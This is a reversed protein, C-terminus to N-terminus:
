HSLGAPKAGPSPTSLGILTNVMMPLTSVMMNTASGLVKDECRSGPVLPGGDEGVRRPVAWGQHGAKTESWAWRWRGAGMAGGALGLPLHLPTSYPWPLLLRVQAYRPVNVEEEKRIAAVRQGRDALRGGEGVGRAGACCTRGDAHTCAWAQDGHGHQSRM